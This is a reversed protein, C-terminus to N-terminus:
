RQLFLVSTVPDCSTHAATPIGHIKKKKEEEERGAPRFDEGVPTRHGYMRTKICRKSFHVPMLCQLFVTLLVAM